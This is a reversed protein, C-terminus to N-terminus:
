RNEETDPSEAFAKGLAFADLYLAVLFPHADRLHARDTGTPAIGQQYLIGFRNRVFYLFSAEDVGLIQFTGVDLGEAMADHTQVVHSLRIFDPHTPRDPFRPDPKSPDPM